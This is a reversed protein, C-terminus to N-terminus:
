VETQEYRSRKKGLGCIDTDHCCLGLWCSYREKNYWVCDACDIESETGSPDLFARMAMIEFQHQADNKDVLDHHQAENKM